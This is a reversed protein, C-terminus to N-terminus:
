WRIYNEETEPFAFEEKTLEKLEPYLLSGDYKDGYYKEFINNGLVADDEKETQEKSKTVTLRGWRYRIYYAYSDSDWAYWQTPCITGLNRIKKIEIM